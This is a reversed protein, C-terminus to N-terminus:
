LTQHQEFFSVCTEYHILGWRSRYKAIDCPAMFCYSPIGRGYIQVAHRPVEKRDAITNRIQILNLCKFLAVAVCRLCRHGLPGMQIILKWMWNTVRVNNNVVIDFMSVQFSSDTVARCVLKACSLCCYSNDSVFIQGDGMCSASHM